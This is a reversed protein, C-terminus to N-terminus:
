KLALVMTSIRQDMDYHLNLWYLYFTGNTWRMCHLHSSSASYCHSRIIYGLSISIAFRSGIAAFHNRYAILILHLTYCESPTCFRRAIRICRKSIIAFWQCIILQFDTRTSVVHCHECTQVNTRHMCSVAAVVVIPSIRLKYPEAPFRCVRM